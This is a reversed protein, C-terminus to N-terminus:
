RFRVTLRDQLEIKLAPIGGVLSKMDELTKPQATVLRRFLAEDQILKGFDLDVLTVTSGERYTANTDVIRGNVEVALRIRMQEFFQRMLRLESEDPEKQAEQAPEPPEAKAPPPVLIDLVATAGPNFRFTIYRPPEDAEREATRLNPVAINEGPNSSLRLANIDRFRYVALYGAGRETGIPESSALEIGEGMRAAQQRLHEQDVMVQGAPSRSEPEGEGAEESTSGFNKLMDLFQNGFMVRQEVTGSGDKNVRVLIITEFCGALALLALAVVAWRITKM